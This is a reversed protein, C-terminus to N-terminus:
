EKKNIDEGNLWKQYKLGNQNKPVTRYRSTKRNFVNKFSGLLFLIDPESLVVIDLNQLHYDKLFLMGLSIIDM